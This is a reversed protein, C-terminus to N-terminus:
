LDGGMVGGEGDDLEIDLDTDRKGMDTHECIIRSEPLEYEKFKLWRFWPYFSSDRGSRFLIGIQSNAYNAHFGFINPIRYEFM